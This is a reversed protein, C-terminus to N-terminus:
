ESGSGSGDSAADDGDDDAIDDKSVSSEARAKRMLKLLDPDSTLDMATDGNGDVIRTDAGADLLSEVVYKRVDPESIRLALHLPTAHELRNIPDVDCGECSLLHELV